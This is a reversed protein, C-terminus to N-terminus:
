KLRVPPAQPKKGRQIELLYRKGQIVVVTPLDGKVKEVTAQLKDGRQYPM